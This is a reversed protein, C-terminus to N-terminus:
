RQVHAALSVATASAIDIVDGQDYRTNLLPQRAVSNEQLARRLEVMARVALAPTM